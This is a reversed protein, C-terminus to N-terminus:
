GWERKLKIEERDQIDSVYPETIRAVEEGEMVLIKGERVSGNIKELLRVVREDDGQAEEIARAIEEPLSSYINGNQNFGRDTSTVMANTFTPSPRPIDFNEPDFDDWDLDDDDLIVKIRIEKDDIPDLSEVLSKSAEVALRKASKIVYRISRFLS